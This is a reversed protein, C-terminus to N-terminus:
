FRVMTSGLLFPLPHPQIPLFRLVLQNVVMHMLILQQVLIIGKLDFWRRIKFDAPGYTTANAYLIDLNSDLGMENIFSGEEGAYNSPDSSRSLYKIPWGPQTLDRLLVGDNYVYNLIIYSTSVQDVFSYAGDGTSITIGGVTQSVTAGFPTAELLYSGNDQTGGIIYDDSYGHPTQAVRYFQTTIYDKEQDTFTSTTTASALSSTYSVGGDNVVIAQDNNGPRFYIGHQDAHVISVNLAAMDNNNSWKSIQEWTTGGNASRFLDIGGVYVINENSPDTEIELDYGSQGRTFDTAPIGTDAANPENLKTTTAFKDATVYIEAGDDADKLLIYFKNGDTPSPEIEIRREKGATTGSYNPPSHRTFNTGDTSSYFYGGPNGYMNSRTSLWIENTAPHIEIDNVNEPNTTGTHVVDSVRSWNDGNDTSKYLGYSYLGMFTIIGSDEESNYASGIAAFIITNDPNSNNDSDWIVIDNVYFFGQIYNHTGSAGENTSMATKDSGLVRAWNAGGDTSRYIGNGLADAGTYSEGTGLFM